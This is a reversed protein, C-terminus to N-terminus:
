KKRFKLVIKQQIPVHILIKKNKDKNKWKIYM